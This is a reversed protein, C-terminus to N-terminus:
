SPTGVGDVWVSPKVSKLYVPKGLTTDFFRRGIWLGAIPRQATTGSEQASSAVNHVRQVWAVWPVTMNQNEDVVVSNTPSDFNNSSAM